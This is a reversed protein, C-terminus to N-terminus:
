LSRREVKVYCWPSSTVDDNTRTLELMSRSKLRRSRERTEMVPTVFEILIVVVVFIFHRSIIFFVGKKGFADARTSRVRIVYFYAMSSKIRAVFYFPFLGTATSCINTSIAFLAM